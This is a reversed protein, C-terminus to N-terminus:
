GDVMVLEADRIVYRDYRYDRIFVIRDKRWELWMFYAPGPASGCEFAAIVERKELWAPTLRIGDTKAYTNFFTGVYKTGTRVPHSSQQLKVDSALLARLAPWDRQNFHMVFRAVAASPTHERKPPVPRESIERLRARGRALHAKVSDVSLDLLAAIDLLPEGLVDKLVVVSRQAPPLETFRSVATNVAEHQLLTLLPDPTDPDSIEVAADIPELKRLARGRLIDLARNHAIRFLWARLVTPEQLEHLAQLARAMTDQVVDEGDVVSGMLRSCYRHLEPRLERAQALFEAQYKADLPKSRANM